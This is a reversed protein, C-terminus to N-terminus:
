TTGRESRAEMKDAEALFSSWGHDAAFMVWKHWSHEYRRHSGAALRKYAYSDGPHPLAHAAVVILLLLVLITLTNTTSPHSRVCVRSCSRCSRCCCGLGRSSMAHPFFCFCLFTPKSLSFEILKQDDPSIMKSIINHICAASVRMIDQRFYVKISLFM